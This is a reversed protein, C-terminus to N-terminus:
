LNREKSCFACYAKDVTPAGIGVMQETCFHWGKPKEAYPGIIYGIIGCGDCKMSGLKNTM